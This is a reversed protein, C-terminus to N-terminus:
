LESIEAGKPPAYQFLKPEIKNKYKPNSFILETENEIDDVYILSLLDQNKTSIKLTISSLNWEAKAPTFQLVSVGGETTTKLPHFHKSFSGQGMILQLINYALSRKIGKAKTVKFGGGFDEDLKEESWAFNGDFVVKSKEPETIQWLFLGTKTIRINGKSEKIRGLLSNKSLRAVSFEVQQFSGMKSVLEDLISQQEVRSKRLPDVPKTAFSIVPILPVLFLLLVCLPRFISPKIQDFM